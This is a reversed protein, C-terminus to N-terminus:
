VILVDDPRRISFHSNYLMGELIPPQQQGNVRGIHPFAMSIFKIKNRGNGNVEEIGNGNGNGDEIGDENGNGNEGKPQEKGTESDSDSYTNPSPTSNKSTFTVLSNTSFQSQLPLPLPVFSPSRSFRAHPQQVPDVHCKSLHTQLRLPSTYAFECRDCHFHEREALRCRGQLACPQEASFHMKSLMPHCFFRKEQFDPTDSESKVYKGNSVHSEAAETKVHNRRPNAESPSPASRTGCALALRHKEEHTGM